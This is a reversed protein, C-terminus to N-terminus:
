LITRKYPQLMSQIPASIASTDYAITEQGGISKSRLGIREAARFREAALELAAQVIDQPVYGYSISVSQGADVASFGYAGASVTYQGAGPSASVATLPAGTATYTVGLDSAWPGYPSFASLQLPAAVPVPQAENQIAYGASYSIVLSQRGPRYHHGFLDLAQPQGPPVGDGPQIAYGVSAELDANEDPPVAIGRSTVSTVRLVPWHRLTVRSTELDITEVYSFPLLSPRSLAAYISRSAATVLAALTADNPGPASPLGLWAKLAALNTLDFPSM